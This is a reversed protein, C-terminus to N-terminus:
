ILIRIIIGLAIQCSLICRFRRYRRSSIAFTQRNIESKKGAKSLEQMNPVYFQKACLFFWFCFCNQAGTAVFRKLDQYIKLFWCIIEHWIMALMNFNYYQRISILSYNNVRWNVWFITYLQAAFKHIYISLIDIRCM